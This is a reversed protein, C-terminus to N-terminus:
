SRDVWAGTAAFPRDFRAVFYLTYYSKRTVPDIYGCFNGSSVSGSM